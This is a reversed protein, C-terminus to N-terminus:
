LLNKVLMRLLRVDHGAFRFSFDQIAISIFLMDHLFGTMHLGSKIKYLMNFM